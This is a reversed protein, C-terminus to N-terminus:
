GYNISLAGVQLDWYSSGGSLDIRLFNMGAALSSVGATTVYWGGGTAAGPTFTVTQQVWTLGDVSAFVKIRTSMTGSQYYVKASLSDIDTANYYFSATGLGVAQARRLRSPDNQFNQTATVDFGVKTPDANYQKSYDTMRDSIVGKGHEIYMSGVQPSWSRGTPGVIQLRVYNTGAPLALANSFTARNWSSPLPTTASRAYTVPVWSTGNTSTFMQVKSDPLPTENSWVITATFRTIGTYNWDLFQTTDTSRGARSSDGGISGSADLGWGAPAVGGRVKTWDNLDDQM